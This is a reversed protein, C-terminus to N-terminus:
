KKKTLQIILAALGILALTYQFLDSFTVVPLGGEGPPLFPTEGGFSPFSRGFAAAEAACRAFSVM